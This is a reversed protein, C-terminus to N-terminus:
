WGELQQEFPIESRNRVVNFVVCFAHEATDQCASDCVGADCREIDDLAVHLDTSRGHKLESSLEDTGCKRPLDSRFFVLAKSGAEFQEHLLLAHVPHPFTEPGGEDTVGQL